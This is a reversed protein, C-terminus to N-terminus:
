QVDVVFNKVEHLNVAELPSFQPELHIFGKDHVTIVVKKNEKVEKTAHRATCEYDGTDKVSADPITLTYVLKQSPVKIDDLKILGKEKVKGPYNWQLNVVENDFVVCTVVITEGTKYVTKLAEIEVPLQSTARLIYILFEDSKFEVGKVITKCTYPGALFNGIFGQKSDYFAYVPKDLSNVLTVEASPDSTRCPIVTPDGEEVLIFQDEPLSPVFPMDPD